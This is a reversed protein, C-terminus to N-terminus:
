YYITFVSHNLNDSQYCRSFASLPLAKLKEVFESDPDKDILTITYRDKVIYPGNNAYKTNMADINYVICPYKLQISAPPQYYVNRTGLIDCLNEHLELRSAM